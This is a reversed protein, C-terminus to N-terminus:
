LFRGRLVAQCGAVRLGSILSHSLGGRLPSEFAGTEVAGFGSAGYCGFAFRNGGHVGKAVAEGGRAGQKGAFGLFREVLEELFVHVFVLGDTWGLAVEDM